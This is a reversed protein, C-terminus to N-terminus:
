EVREGTNEIGDIPVFDALIMGIRPEIKIFLEQSDIVIVQALQSAGVVRRRLHDARHDSQDVFRKATVSEAEMSAEGGRRDGQSVRCGAGAGEHQANKAADGLSDSFILTLPRDRADNKIRKLAEYCELNM